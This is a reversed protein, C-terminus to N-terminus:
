LSRSGNWLFEEVASIEGPREVGCKGKVIRETAYTGLLVGPMDRVVV